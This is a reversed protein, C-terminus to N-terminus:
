VDSDATQLRCIRVYVSPGRVSIILIIDLPQLGMVYTNLHILFIYSLCKHHNWISFFVMQERHSIFFLEANYPNVERMANIICWMANETTRLQSDRYRSVARLSQFNLNYLEHFSSHYLGLRGSFCRWEAWYSMFDGCKIRRSNPIATAIGVWHSYFPFLYRSIRPPPYGKLRRYRM